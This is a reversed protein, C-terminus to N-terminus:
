AQRLIQLTARERLVGLSAAEQRDRALKDARAVIKEGAARLGAITIPLNQADEVNKHKECRRDETDLGQLFTMEGYEGEEVKWQVEAKQWVVVAPEGCYTLQIPHNRTEQTKGVVYNCRLVDWKTGDERFFRAGNKRQL